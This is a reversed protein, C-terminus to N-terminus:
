RCRVHPRRRRGSAAGVIATLAAILLGGTGPEPVVVSVNDILTFLLNVDNVDASSGGNTDSHGFFINGGGLSLNSLDVTAIPVGDVTWHALQGVKAIEVQRWTMGASGVNTSNTQQPYLAKQAAPASVNGFAAYYPHSNNRADPSTGTGAAYVGSAAVYGTAAAPSYARWDAISNGDGTAAFFVSDTTGGPWQASNGATAVGFTSLQTSGSGGLPFPGNFNAWWDFRVRYDGSFSQSLPSVSMGSFVGGSQNAQLNLGRTTGSSRPAPPIGVTSYDFFFDAAEDSPGGNVVWAASPNVEFDESFLIAAGDARGGIWLIAALAAAFTRATMLGVEYFLRTALVDLPEM